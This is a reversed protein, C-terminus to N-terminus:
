RLLFRVLSLSSPSWGEQGKGGLLQPSQAGLCRLSASAPRATDPSLGTLLQWAQHTELLFDEQLMAM